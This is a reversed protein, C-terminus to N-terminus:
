NNELINKATSVFVSDLIEEVFRGSCSVRSLRKVLCFNDNNSLKEAGVDKVFTERNRVWFVIKLQQLFLNVKKRIGSSKLWGATNSFMRSEESKKQKFNVM